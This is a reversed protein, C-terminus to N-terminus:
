KRYHVKVWDTFNMTPSRSYGPAAMMSLTGSSQQLYTQYENRAQAETVNEPISLIWPLSSIPAVAGAPYTAGPRVSQGAIRRSAIVVLSGPPPEFDSPGFQSEPLPIYIKGDPLIFTGRPLYYIDPSGPPVIPVEVPLGAQGALSTPDLVLEELAIVFPNALALGIGRVIAGAAIAGRRGAVRILGGPYGAARTVATGPTAGRMIAAINQEILNQPVGAARLSGEIIEQQAAEGLGRWVRQAADPNQIPLGRAALYNHAANHAEVSEVSLQAALSDL